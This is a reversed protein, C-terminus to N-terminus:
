GNMVVQGVLQNQKRASDNPCNSKWNTCTNFGDNSIVSVLVDTGFVISFALGTDWVFGISFPELGVWFTGSGGTAGKCDCRGGESDLAGEWGCRGDSGTDFAGICCIIDGCPFLFLCLLDPPFEFFTEDGFRWTLCCLQLVGSFLSFRSVESSFSSEFCPPLFAGTTLSVCSCGFDALLLAFSNSM